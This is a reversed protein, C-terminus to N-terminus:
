HYVWCPSFATKSQCGAQIFWHILLVNTLIWYAHEITQGEPGPTWPSYKLCEKWCFLFLSSKKLYYQLLPLRPFTTFHGKEIVGLPKGICRGRLPYFVSKYKQTLCYWTKSLLYPGKAPAPPQYPRTPPKRIGVLEWFSIFMPKWFM